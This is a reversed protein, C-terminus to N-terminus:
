VGEQKRIAAATRLKIRYLKKEELRKGGAIRRCTICGRHGKKTIYTNEMSFEHGHKCHTIKSHGITCIRGKQAADKMNDSRTGVFLHKPNVCSRKDCTHCVDFASSPMYGNYIAWSVRHAAVNRKRVLNVYFSGYGGTKTSALWTWCENESGKKVKSWFRDELSGWDIMEM